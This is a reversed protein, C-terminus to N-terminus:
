RNLGHQKIGFASNTRLFYNLEPLVERNENQCAKDSLLSKSIQMDRGKKRNSRSVCTSTVNLKHRVQYTRLEQLVSYFNQPSAILLDQLM